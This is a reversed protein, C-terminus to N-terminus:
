NSTGNTWNALTITSGTNADLNITQLKYPEGLGGATTDANTDVGLVINYSGSALTTVAATASLNSWSSITVSCVSSACTVTGAAVARVTTGSMWFAAFTKNNASEDVCDTAGSGCSITVNPINIQAPAATDGDDDDKPNCGTLFMMSLLLFVVSFNKM